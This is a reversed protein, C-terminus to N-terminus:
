KVELLEVDFLLTSNPPINPPRGMPGYALNAPITFKRKGGVKMSMIGEDWGKIVEGVGIRYEAPRGRDVSSDFKKGNTLTGTYHVTVTQGRQPTAGTGEVLDVYKLGSATTVEAGGTGGGRKSLVYGVASLALLVVLVIAVIRLNRNRGTPAAPSSTPYAGRPRKKAKNVKRHRSQPM